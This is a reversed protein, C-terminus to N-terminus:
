CLTTVSILTKYATVLSRIVCCSTNEGFYSKLKGFVLGPESFFIFASKSHCYGESGYCSRPYQPLKPTRQTGQPDQWGQAPQPVCQPQKKPQGQAPSKCAQIGTEWWMCAEKNGPIRGRSSLLDMLTERFLLCKITYWLSCCCRDRHQRPSQCHARGLLWLRPSRPPLTSGSSTVKYCVHGCERVTEGQFVLRSLLIICSLYSLERTPFSAPITSSM